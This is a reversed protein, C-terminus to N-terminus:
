DREIFLDCGRTMRPDVAGSIHWLTEDAARCHFVCTGSIPPADDRDACASTSFDGGAGEYRNAAAALAARSAHRASCEQRAAAPQWESGSYDQCFMSNAPAFYFLCSGVSSSMSHPAACVTDTPPVLTADADFAARTVWRHMAALSILKCHQTGQYFNRETPHWPVRVSPARVSVNNAADVNIFADMTVPLWEGGTALIADDAFRLQRGENAYRERQEATLEAIARALTAENVARCPTDPGPLQLQLTDNVRERNVLKCAIYTAQQEGGYETHHTTMAIIAARRDQDINMQITHFGNSTGHQEIVPFHDDANIILRQATQCLHADYDGAATTGTAAATATYVLLTLAPLWSSCPM